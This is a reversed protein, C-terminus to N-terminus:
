EHWVVRPPWWCGPPRSPDLLSGAPVGRAGPPRSPDLQSAAGSPRARPTSGTRQAGPRPRWRLLHARIPRRPNMPRHRPSDHRRSGGGGPRHAGAGRGRAHRARAVGHGFLPAPDAGGREGRGRLREGPRCPGSHEDFPRREKVRVNVLVQPFKVMCAALESLPQGTERMVGLLHLASAIGDGTTSHDLFLLHGSQEGGLNAGVRQMEELVYRDGVQTKVTRVGADRLAKDLGLNAMVTTVVVGGMLRGKSAMHRGCIALAYDGDRIEGREDVSILRDGDGDFAIGLHAGASLVRTRLVDPHLAGVQQNINLGDPRAGLVIVRAGLSRFVKPAVRYTAGHACDLVITMGGLDFLCARRADSVYDTDAGKYRLISGIEAGIPKPAKDPAPSGGRSRM